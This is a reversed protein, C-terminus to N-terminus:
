RNTNTTDFAGAIINSKTIKWKELTALIAAAGVTATGNPMKAIDILTEEGPAFYYEHSHTLKYELGNITNM